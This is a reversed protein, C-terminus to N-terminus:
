YVREYSLDFSSANIKMKRVEIHYKKAFKMIKDQNRKNIKLGLFIRSPLNPMFYNQNKGYSLLRYEQEYSWDFSKNM